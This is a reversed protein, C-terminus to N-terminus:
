YAFALAGGIKRVLFSIMMNKEPRSSTWAPRVSILGQSGWAAM